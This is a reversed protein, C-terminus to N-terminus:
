PRRRRIHITLVPGEIKAEIEDQDIDRPMTLTRQFAVEQQTRMWGTRGHRAEKEQRRKGTITLRRGHAEVKLDAARMGEVPLEIHWGDEVERMEVPVVERRPTGWPRRVLEDFLRDIEELVSPLAMTEVTVVAPRVDCRRPAATAVTGGRVCLSLAM